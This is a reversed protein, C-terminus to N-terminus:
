SIRGGACGPAGKNELPLPGDTALRKVGAPFLLAERRKRSGRSARLTFGVFRFLRRTERLSWCYFVVRSRLLERLLLCRSGTSCCLCLGQM